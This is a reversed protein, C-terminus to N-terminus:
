EKHDAIPIGITNDIPISLKSFNNSPANIIANLIKLNLKKLIFM